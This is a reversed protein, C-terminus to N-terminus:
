DMGRIPMARSSEHNEDSDDFRGTSIIKAIDIKVKINEEIGLMELLRRKITSQIKETTEPINADSLLAAKSTVSIEKKTASVVTKLEKVEPIQKIIKKVYDEIAPLSVIVQGDPNDFAITRDRNLRALNVRSSVLGIVIFLCGVGALVARVNQMSLSYSLYSEIEGPKLIDLAALILLGGAVLYASLCILIGISKILKM